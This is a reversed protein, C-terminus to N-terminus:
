LVEEHTYGVQFLEEDHTYEVLDNFICVKFHVYEHIFNNILRIFGFSHQTIQKYYIYM